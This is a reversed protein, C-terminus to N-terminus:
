LRIAVKQQKIAHLLQLLRKVRVLMEKYYDINMPKISEMDDNIEQLAVLNHAISLKFPSLDNIVDSLSSSVNRCKKDM